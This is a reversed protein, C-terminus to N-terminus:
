LALQRARVDRRYADLAATLGEPRGLIESGLTLTDAGESVVRAAEYPTLPGDVSLATHGKRERLNERLIAVREVSSALFRSDAFGWESTFVHVRDVDGLLYDLKTLSSGPSIAVGAKCGQERISTLARQIHTCGEAQLIVTDAGAAICQAIWPEPDRMVLCAACPLGTVRKVAAAFEPALGLRPAMRGDTMHLFIEACGAAEAEAVTEGLRMLDAHLLAAAIRPESKDTSM